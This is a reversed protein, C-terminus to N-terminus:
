KVSYVWLLNRWEPKLANLKKNNCLYQISENLLTISCVNNREKLHKSKFWYVYTWWRDSKDIWLTEWNFLYRNRHDGKCRLSRRCPLVFAIWNPNLKLLMELKSEYVQPEYLYPQTYRTLYDIVEWVHLLKSLYNGDLCTELYSEM